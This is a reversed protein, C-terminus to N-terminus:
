VRFTTWLTTMCYFGTNCNVVRMICAAAYVEFDNFNRKAYLNKVQQILNEKDHFIVSMYKVVDSKYSNLKM